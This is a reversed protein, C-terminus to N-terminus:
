SKIMSLTDWALSDYADFMPDVGDEVQGGVERGVEAPREVFHHVVDDRPALMRRLEEQQESLKSRMERQQEPSPRGDVSGVRFAAYDLMEPSLELFVVMGEFRHVLAQTRAPLVARVDDTAWVMRPVVPSQGGLVSQAIRQAAELLREDPLGRLGAAQVLRALHDFTSFGHGLAEAVLAGVDPAGSYYVGLVLLDAAGPVAPRWGPPRMDLLGPHILFDARDRLLEPALERSHERTLPLLTGDLIADVRSRTRALILETSDESIAETSALEKPLIYIQYQYPTMRHSGRRVPLVGILAGGPDSETNLGERLLRCAVDVGEHKAAGEPMGLTHAMARVHGQYLRVSFERAAAAEVFSAYSPLETQGMEGGLSAVDEQLFEAISAITDKDRPRRHGGSQWNYYTARSVGLREILEKVSLGAVKRRDELRRPWDAGDGM